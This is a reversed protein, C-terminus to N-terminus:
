KMLRQWVGLGGRMQILGDLAYRAADPAHDNKEELIPLVQPKGNEDVTRKDVKYSYLRFDRVANPCRTEHIIVKRFARIHAIGDEVSGKWKEAASISYGQRSLYSICEPRANDAKIPWNRATEVTADFFAPMEDLEIQHGYAERDIMLDEGYGDESPRTWSRLLVTPDVSFGFDLGHYFRTKEPPEDFTEIALKKNYVSAETIKRCEGEWVWGYNDLDYKLMNQRLTELVPPFYPNDYWNVPVIISDPQAKTVFRVHTADDEKDPNYSIWVESNNERITPDLFLWADMTVSHAEDCWIINVGKMSRIEGISKQLGKFIFESGTTRCIITQKQIDFYEQLKLEYIWFSLVRHVSDFISNQYMRTCLILQKKRLALAILVQAINETKGGGRGGYYVKYRAPRLLGEFKVPINLTINMM